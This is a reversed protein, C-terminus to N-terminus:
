VADAQALGSVSVAAGARRDFRNLYSRM